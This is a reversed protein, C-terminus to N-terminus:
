QDKGKTVNLLYEIDEQALTVKFLPFLNDGLFIIEMEQSDEHNWRKVISDSVAIDDGRQKIRSLSITM